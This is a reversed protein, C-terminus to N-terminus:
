VGIGQLQSAILACHPFFRLTDPLLDAKQPPYYNYSM